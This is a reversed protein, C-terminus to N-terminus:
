IRAHHIVQFKLERALEGGIPLRGLHAPNECIRRAEILRGGGGIYTRARM